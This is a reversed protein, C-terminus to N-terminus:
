NESCDCVNKFADDVLDGADSTEAGEELVLEFARHLEVRLRRHWRSM